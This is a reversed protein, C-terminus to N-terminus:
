GRPHLITCKRSFIIYRFDGMYGQFAKGIHRRLNAIGGTNGGFLEALEKPPILTEPFDVDYTNNETIHPKVDQLGLAFLRLESLNMKKRSEILPNVQIVVKELISKKEM